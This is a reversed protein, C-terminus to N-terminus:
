EVCVEIHTSIKNIGGIALSYKTMVPNDEVLTYLQLEEGELWSSAESFIM